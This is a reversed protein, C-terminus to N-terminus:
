SSEQANRERKGNEEDPSVRGILRGVIPDGDVRIPFVQAPLPFIGVGGIGQDSEHCEARDRQGHQRSPLSLPLDSSREGKLISTAM